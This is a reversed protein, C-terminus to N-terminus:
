LNQVLSKQKGCSSCIYRQCRKCKHKHSFLHFSKRCIECESIDPRSEKEFYISQKKGNDVLSLTKFIFMLILSNKRAKTTKFNHHKRKKIAQKYIIYIYLM